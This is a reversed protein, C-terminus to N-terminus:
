LSAEVILETTVFNETRLLDGVSMRVSTTHSGAPFVVTDKAAVHPDVYGNLRLLGPLPPLAGLEYGPFAEEMEQESALRARKDATADQLRKKDVRHGGPVVALAYGEALHILLTKAVHDPDVGIASAEEAASFTEGHELAEWMISREDLYRSVDGHVAM